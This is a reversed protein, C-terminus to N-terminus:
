FQASTSLLASVGDAGSWSLSVPEGAKVDQPFSTFGLKAEVASSALLAAAAIVSKFLM